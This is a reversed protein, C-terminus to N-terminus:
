ARSSDCAGASLGLRALVAPISSGERLRGVVVLHAEPRGTRLKALAELLPVLGKMPVDSSVTAMIRGPVENVEPMPCFVDRDVGVPVVAIHEPAIRFEAAIDLRSSQSVTVVRPAACAVRAQMGVFGYWRRLSLRRQWRDAHAMDLERDVTIPHHITALVPWGDRMM